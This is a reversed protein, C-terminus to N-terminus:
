TCAPNSPFNLGPLLWLPRFQSSQSNTASAVVTKTQKATKARAGLIVSFQFASAARLATISIKRTHQPAAKHFTVLNLQHQRCLGASTSKTRRASDFPHEGRANVLGPKWGMSRSIDLTPCTNPCVYIGSFTGVADADTLRM